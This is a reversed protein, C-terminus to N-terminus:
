TLFCDQFHIELHIPVRYNNNTKLGINSEIYPKGIFDEQGCVICNSWLTSCNVIFELFRCRGIAKIKQFHGFKLCQKVLFVADTNIYLELSSNYNEM